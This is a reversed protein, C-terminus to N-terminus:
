EGQRVSMNNGPYDLLEYDISQKFLTKTKECNLSLKPENFNRVKTIVIEGVTWGEECSLVKGSIGNFSVVLIVLLLKMKLSDSDLFQCM